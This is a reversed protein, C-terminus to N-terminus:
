GATAGRLGLSGMVLRERLGAPLKLLVSIMCADAVPQVPRPKMAPHALVEEGLPVRHRQAVAQEAQEGFPRGAAIVQGAAELLHETLDPRGLM